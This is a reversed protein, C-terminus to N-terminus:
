STAGGCPPRPNFYNQQPQLSDHNADGGARPAHISIGTITEMNGCTLTAGRVLPTSQFKIRGYDAIRCLQRGGCPPRPNFDDIERDLDSAVPRGGCPPRPNFYPPRHPWTRIRCDGGARPAHISILLLICCGLRWWTAGGYPPPTSRFLISPHQRSSPVPRGGCPPASLPVVACFVPSTPLIGDM